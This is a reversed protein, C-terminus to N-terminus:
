DYISAIQTPVLVTSIPIPMDKILIELSMGSTDVHLMAILAAQWRGGSSLSACRRGTVHPTTDRSVPSGTRHESVVELFTLGSITPSFTEPSFSSHSTSKTVAGMLADVDTLDTGSVDILDSGTYDSESSSSAPISGQKSLSKTPSCQRINCSHLTLRLFSLNHSASFLPYPTPPSGRSRYHLLPGARARCLIPQM